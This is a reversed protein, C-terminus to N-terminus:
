VYAALSAKGASAGDVLSTETEAANAMSSREQRESKLRAARASSLAQLWAARAKGDPDAAEGLAPVSSTPRPRQLNAGAGHGGSRLLKRQAPTLEGREVRKLVVERPLTKYRPGLLAMLGGLREIMEPEKKQKPDTVFRSHIGDAEELGAILLEEHFDPEGLLNSLRDGGVRRSSPGSPSVSPSAAGSFDTFSQMTDFMAFRPRSPSSVVSQVQPTPAAIPSPQGATAPSGPAPWSGAYSRAAPSASGRSAAPSLAPTGAASFSRVPRPVTPRISAAGPHIAPHSSVPVSASARHCSMGPSMPTQWGSGPRGWSTASPSQLDAPSSWCRELRSASDPANYRNAQPANSSNPPSDSDRDPSGGQARPSLAQVRSKAATVTAPRAMIEAAKLQPELLHLKQRKFQVERKKNSKFLNELQMRTTVVNKTLEQSRTDQHLGRPKSSNDPM